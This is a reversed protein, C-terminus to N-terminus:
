FGFCLAGDDTYGYYLPRVGIRDRALFVSGPRAVACAFPERAREVSPGDPALPDQGEWAAQQGTFSISLTLAQVAGVTASRSEILKRKGAKGRHTIKNLMQAVLDRQGPRDIGVIGVM